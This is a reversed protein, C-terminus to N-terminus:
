KKKKLMKSFAMIKRAGDQGAFKAVSLRLKQYDEPTMTKSARKIRKFTKAAELRFDSDDFLEKNGSAIKELNDLDRKELQSQLIENVEGAYVFAVLVALVVLVAATKM